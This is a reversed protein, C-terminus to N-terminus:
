VASVEIQGAGYFCDLYSGAVEEITGDMHVSGDRLWVGRTCVKRLADIDHSVMVITIGEAFASQLRKLCKLRFGEDGVAMVEDILFIDPAACMAVAFGLRAQMGASYYKLPTDMFGELEAFYEIDPMISALYKESLGLITGNIFVNEAGTLEGHFGTGIGLLACVRGVRRVEGSTPQLIGAMLRLLTSKGCGNRGLIGVTEGRRIELNIDRLVTRTETEKRKGLVMDLMERRLWRDRGQYRRFDKSVNRLVIAATDRHPLSSSRLSSM